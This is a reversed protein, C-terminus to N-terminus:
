VWRAGRPQPDYGMRRGETVIENAVEANTNDHFASKGFSGGGRFGFRIGKLHDRFCIPGRRQVEGEVPDGCIECRYAM